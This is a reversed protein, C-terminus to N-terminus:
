DPPRCRKFNRLCVMETNTKM